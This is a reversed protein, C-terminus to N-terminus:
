TRNRLRGTQAMAKMAEDKATGCLEWDHLDCQRYKRICFKSCPCFKKSHTVKKQPPMMDLNVAHGM